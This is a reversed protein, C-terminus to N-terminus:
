TCLHGTDHISSEQVPYIQQNNESGGITSKEIRIVIQTASIVM